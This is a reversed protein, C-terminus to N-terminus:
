SEKGMEKKYVQLILSALEEAGNRSEKEGKSLEYHM